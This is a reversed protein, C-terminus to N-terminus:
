AMEDDATHLVLSEYGIRRKDTLDYPLVTLDHCPDDYFTSVGILDISQVEDMLFKILGLYMPQVRQKESYFSLDLFSLLLYFDRSRLNYIVCFSEFGAFVFM